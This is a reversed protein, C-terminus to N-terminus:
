GNKIKEKLAELNAVVILHAVTGLKKCNKIRGDIIKEVEALYDRLTFLFSEEDTCGRTQRKKFEKLWYSEKLFKIKEKDMMLIEKM